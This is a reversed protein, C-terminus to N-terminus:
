RRVERLNTEGSDERTWQHPGPPGAFQRAQSRSRLALGVEHFPVVAVIFAPTRRVDDLLAGTPAHPGVAARVSLGRRHHRFAGIPEQNPQAGNRAVDSNKGMPLEAGGQSSSPDSQRDALSLMQLEARSRHTRKGDRTVMRVNRHDRQPIGGWGDKDPPCLGKHPLLRERHLQWAAFRVAYSFYRAHLSCAPPAQRM